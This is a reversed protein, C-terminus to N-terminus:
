NGRKWKRNGKLRRNRLIIEEGIAWLGVIVLIGLSFYIETM